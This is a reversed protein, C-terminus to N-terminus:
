KRVAGDDAVMVASVPPHQAGDGAADRDRWMQERLDSGLYWLQEETTDDAVVDCRRTTALAGGLFVDHQEGASVDLGVPNRFQDRCPPHRREPIPLQMDGSVAVHAVLKATHCLADRADHEMAEHAAVVEDRQHTHRLKADIRVRYAVSRPVDKGEFNDLIECGTSM